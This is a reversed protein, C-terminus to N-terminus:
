RGDDLRLPPRGRQGTTPGSRRAAARAADIFARLKIPDKVGPEAEVGTAVDVGWPQVARHGRYTRLPSGAPWCSGCARPHGRPWPGTSSGGPARPQRLRAARHGRQVWRRAAAPTGARSRRSSPRLREASGARAAASEHGHLQAAALGARQVIDVVRPPSEDRFVGVTLIEPPLRKVIDAARRRSSATRRRSCSALPTPVWRWPSCRM